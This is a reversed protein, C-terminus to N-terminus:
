GRNKLKKYCDNMWCYARVNVLCVAARFRNWVTAAKGRLFRRDLLYRYPERYMEADYVMNLYSDLIANKMWRCLEGDQQEALQNQEELTRFLDIINKERNKGTSISGDRIVYHYLQNPLEVVDEAQLIARPTFEVDEHLIGERFRLGHAELFARRYGYLWAEVNMNRDRYNELLYKKGSLKRVQEPCSRRLTRRSEGDEVVADFIMADIMGYQELIGALVACTKYDIYDDSDVFLVYKGEAHKLGTNRASSLGGNEKHFVKIQSYKRSLQDCMAGSSDSSGDDVLLIEIRDQMQEQNLLSEVCRELYDKVNYVPVIISFLLNNM